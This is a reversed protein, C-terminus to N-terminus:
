NETFVIGFKFDNAFRNMKFYKSKEQVLLFRQNTCPCNITKKKLRIIIRKKRQKNKSMFMQKLLCYKKKKKIIIM